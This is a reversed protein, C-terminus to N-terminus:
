SRQCQRQSRLILEACLACCPVAYPVPKDTSLTIFVPTKNDVYYWYGAIGKRCARSVGCRRKTM